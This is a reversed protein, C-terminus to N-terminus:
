GSRSRLRKYEPSASLMVLRAWWRMIVVLSYSVPLLLLLVLAWRWNLYAWAFGADYLILWLLGALMLRQGATRANEARRRILWALLAFALALGGPLALKWTLHLDAADPTGPHWMTMMITLANVLAVLLVALQYHRHTLAPRKEEWAYAVMSVVSVHTFLLLPHWPVVMEGAPILAHFFRILGLTILGPAVLYKGAFDYFIILLSVFLLLLMSRWGPEAQQSYLAGSVCAILVLASCIWHAAALGLRGSPLPRHAATQLDRRRDILDNLSMGFGYLGLSILGVLLVSPWDPPMAGAGFHRYLLLTCLTNSIATFVLAMRTFQLLSLLRQGLAELM